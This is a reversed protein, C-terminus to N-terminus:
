CEGSRAFWQRTGGSTVASPSSLITSPWPNRRWLWASHVIWCTRGASARCSSRHSWRYGPYTWASRECARNSRTTPAPMRMASFLQARTVRGERLASDAVSLAEDFPLFRACDVVTQVRSTALGAEVDGARMAYRHLETGARREAAVKRGRPVHVHHREPETKVKWGWFLAASTLCLIGGARSAAAPMEAIGPLAYRRPGCRVLRGAAVAQRIAWPDCHQRLQSAPVILGLHRVASVPDILTRATATMAPLRRRNADALQQEDVVGSRRGCRRPGHTAGAGTRETGGAPTPQTRREPARRRM